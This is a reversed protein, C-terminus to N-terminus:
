SGNSKGGCYECHLFCIKNVLYPDKASASMTAGAAFMKGTCFEIRQRVRHHCHHDHRDYQKLLCGYDRSM